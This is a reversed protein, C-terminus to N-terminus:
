TGHSIRLLLERFGINHTDGRLRDIHVFEQVLDALTTKGSGSEGSLAVFSGAPIDLDLGNLVPRGPVYAFTVGSISISASHGPVPHGGSSTTDEEAAEAEDDGGCAPLAPLFLAALLLAALALSPILLKSM